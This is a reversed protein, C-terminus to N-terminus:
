GMRDTRAFYKKAYAVLQGDTPHDVTEVGVVKPELARDHRHLHRVLELKATSPGVILIAGADSIAKAVDHFFHEADAPNAKHGETLRRRHLHHRPAAVASEHVNDPDMHFIRAEQHDIWIAVHKTM